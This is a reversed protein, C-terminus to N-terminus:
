WMVTRIGKWVQVEKREKQATKERQRDSRIALRM